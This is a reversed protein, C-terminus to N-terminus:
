TGYANFAAVLSLWLSVLTILFAAVWPPIIRSPHARLLLYYAAFAAAAPAALAFESPVGLPRRGYLFFVIAVHVGVVAVIVAALAPINLRAHKVM